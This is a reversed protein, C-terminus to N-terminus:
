AAPESALTSRIYLQMDDRLAQNEENREVYLRKLVRKSLHMNKAEAYLRLYLALVQKFPLNDRQAWTKLMNLLTDSIGLRRCGIHTFQPSRWVSALAALMTDAFRQSPVYDPKKRLFVPIDLYEDRAGPSAADMPGGRSFMVRSAPRMHPVVMTQTDGEVLDGGTDVMIMGTYATLLELQTSLEGSHPHSSLLYEQMGAIKVLAQAWKGEIETVPMASDGNKFQADCGKAMVLRPLGPSFCPANIGWDHQQWQWPNTLQAFGCEAALDAIAGAFEAQPNVLVLRGGTADTLRGALDANVSYGVGIVHITVGHQKCLLTVAAMQEDCVDVHGDTILVLHNNRRGSHPLSKISALLAPMVQTGGMDAEITAVFQRLQKRYSGNLPKVSEKFLSYQCGFSTLNVGTSDDLNVLLGDLASRLLAISEGLMSGSRDAVIHLNFAQPEGVQADAIAPYGLTYSHGQWTAQLLGSTASASFELYIDRDMVGQMALGDERQQLPHSSALVEVGTDRINLAFPYHAFLNVDPMLDNNSVGYRPFIQTPLRYILKNGADQAVLAQGLQLSIQISEGAALNGMNIAYVGDQLSEVLVSRRKERIAQEYDLSATQKGKIVAAYTRGDIIVECGLVAAIRPLTFHYIAEVPRAQQNTYNLTYRTIALISNLEVDITASLPNSM